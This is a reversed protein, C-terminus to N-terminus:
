DMILDTSVATQQSCRVSDNRNTCVGSPFQDSPTQTGVRFLSCEVSFVSCDSERTFKLKSVHCHRQSHCQALSQGQHGRRAWAGAVVWATM